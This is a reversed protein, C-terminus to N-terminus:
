EENEEMITIILNITGFPFIVPIVYSVPPLRLVSGQEVYPPALDLEVSYENSMNVAFLGNHLNLFDEMSAQVYEDFDVFDMKAYRSAFDIASDQSMDISAVFNSSGSMEQTVCFDIAVEDSIVPSLPTYDPGIFRILNNFLLRLYTAAPKTIPYNAYKFFREILEDSDQDTEDEMNCIETTNQYDILLDELSANDLINLDVLSQGLLLFDPTQTELLEEVQAVTLYGRDVAIEGFKKDERTQLFCVEEVERATMLGHHIALTGLKIRADSLAKIADTLQEPTIAGQSLLYAGFFQAYM